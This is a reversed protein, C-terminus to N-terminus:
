TYMYTGTLENVGRINLEQTMDVAGEIDFAWKFGLESRGHEEGHADFINIAIGPKPVDDAGTPPDFNMVVVHAALKPDTLRSAFESVGQSVAKIATKPFAITGAFLKQPCRYVKLKFASVVSEWFRTLKYWVDSQQLHLIISIKGGFGGGGGRLAWLLEPETSAWLMRGDPLVVHADLLTKPDSCLGFEGSFWSM